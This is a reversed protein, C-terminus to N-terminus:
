LTEKELNTSLEAPTNHIVRGVLFRELKEAMEFKTESRGIAKGHDFFTAIHRASSVESLDNHVVLDVNTSIRTVAEHTESKTAGATLKFGVVCLRPNQAYSRLRPLIKHNKKLHVAIDEDSDLKSDPSVAAQKDDVTLHRVSYDSVAALHIVAQFDGQGLLHQLSQDLDQFTTFESVELSGSLESKEREIPHQADRALLLHVCHGRSALTEALLVGTRGSSTNTISRVADIPEKTGGATILIYLSKDVSTEMSASLASSKRPAPLVLEGPLRRIIEKLLIDPELLKGDGVEGCALAGSATELIEVSWARLQSLSHQTTPHHYMQTNMAPAILYPKRFDHALFLTSLLDDGIGSALKNITNATAPCLVIVDAWRMLHIHNMHQGAGFVDTHVVRGTLGELTAAGVFELAAHTAVTQVECGAQVLRSIVHCAKYAAISGSLQFLVRHRTQSEGFSM